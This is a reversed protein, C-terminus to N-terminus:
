SKNHIGCEKIEDNEWWWRGARFSERQEISRTCPKCGISPYGRDHLPNYPVDNDHIYERVDKLSWEALPSIKLNNNQLDKEVKKIKARSINQERRLGTIWADVGVLSKKLPSVKRVHCCLQRLEISNYFLDQGYKEIIENLELPDPSCFNIKINYKEAVRGILDYTEEFLKGTDISIFKPMVNSNSSESYVKVLMDILVVGELGFGCVLALRDQYTDRAWRLLDLTSKNNTEQLKDEM